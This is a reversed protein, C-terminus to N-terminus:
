VDASIGGFNAKDVIEDKIQSASGGSNFYNCLMLSILNGILM